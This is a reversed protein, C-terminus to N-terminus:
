KRRSPLFSQWTARSRKPCDRSTRFRRRYGPQATTETSYVPLLDAAWLFTLRAARLTEVMDATDPGVSVATIQMNADRAVYRHISNLTTHTGDSSLLRYLLEYLDKCHKRAVDAWNIGKLTKGLAAEIGDVKRVTAEMTAIDQPSYTARYDPDSLVLRAQKRQDLHHANILEAVFQSDSAVANLAIAGEVASRLLARSDGILGREVLLLAAQFSQHVRVFLVSATFRQNDGVPVQHGRPMDLGLGNLGDSFDFWSKYAPVRRVANRFNEIAPPFFGHTDFSM